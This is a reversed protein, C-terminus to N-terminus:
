GDREHAVAQYLLVGQPGGPARGLTRPGFRVHRPWIFQHIARGKVSEHSERLAAHRWMVGRLCPGERWRAAVERQAHWVNIRARIEIGHQAKRYRRLPVTVSRQVVRERERGAEHALEIGKPLAANRPPARHPNAQSHVIEPGYPRGESCTAKVDCM